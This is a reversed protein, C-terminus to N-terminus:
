WGGPPPAQLGYVVAKGGGDLLRAIGREGLLKNGDRTVLVDAVNAYQEFRVSTDVDDMDGFTHVAAGVNLELAEAGTAELVDGLKREVVRFVLM